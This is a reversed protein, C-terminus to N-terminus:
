FQVINGTIAVGDVTRSVLKGDEVVRIEQHEVGKQDSYSNTYTKRLHNEDTLVNGRDALIAIAAKDGDIAMPKLRENGLNGYLIRQAETSM